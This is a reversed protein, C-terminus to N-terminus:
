QEPTGTLQQDGNGVRCVLRPSQPSVTGPPRLPCVGAGLLDASLGWCVEPMAKSTFGGLGPHVSHRCLTWLPCVFIWGRPSPSCVHYGADPHFPMFPHVGDNRSLAHESAEWASVRRRERPAVTAVLNEGADPLTLFAERGSASLSGTKGLNVM